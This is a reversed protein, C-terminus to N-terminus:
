SALIGKGKPCNLRFLYKNGLLVRFGHCLKTKETIIKGNVLVRAAPLPTIFVEHDFVEVM